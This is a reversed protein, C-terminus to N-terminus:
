LSDNTVDVTTSVVEVIASPQADGSTLGAEPTYILDLVAIPVRFRFLYAAGPYQEFQEGYEARDLLGGGAFQMDCREATSWRDLACIVGQVYRICEREHDGAHAGSLSSRAYVTAAVAMAWTAIKRPNRQAGRPAAFEDLSARDPEFVVVGSHM